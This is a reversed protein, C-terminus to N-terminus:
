DLLRRMVGVDIRDILEDAEGLRHPDLTGSM